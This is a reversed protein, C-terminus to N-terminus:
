GAEDNVHKQSMSFARELMASPNLPHIGAAKFESAGNRNTATGGWAKALLQGFQLRTIQIDDSNSL